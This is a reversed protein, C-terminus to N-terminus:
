REAYTAVKGGFISAMAKAAAAPDAAADPSGVLAPSTGASAIDGAGKLQVTGLVEGSVADVSIARDDTTLAVVSGGDPAAFLRRITGDVQGIAVAEPPVAGSGPKRYADLATTDVSSISGDRSGVLLQSGSEDFAIASAGDIPITAVLARTQLDFSRLEDGTVVDVRDGGRDGALSPDDTRPEILADVVPVGLDSTATVRDDGWAVLGGAMVYKALHPHTYEYIERYLGYRWDQLFETATRAHYVEDFHMQYPESLRFMRVGLTAAILVALIWLDLRDFRGPPEDHLARSRNARVPREALKARFCEIPGLEALSPPDSWTPVAVATAPLLATRPRGWGTPEGRDFAEDGTLDPAEVEDAWEAEWGADDAAASAVVDAALSRRARSRLQVFSWVAVAAATLAILSVGATSHIAGGIGLWDSIHPNDRYITTLVVYMNLFTTLSLLVYAIRWRISAAALIAGLGIFPFLYREHVRTPLIFFAIALITVGVLRAQPTPRRALATTVIRIPHDTRREWDILRSVIAAHNRSVSPAAHDSRVPWLARRITVVAVVPILIALQPKVLAAIVTFIASREPQDRWLARLGLLLFVVGFSDVQGWVVSDFWSVPNAVVLAAGVLAARRGAGIERAMSWVLWGLAVDALIPPIKILDGVGGVATFAQHVTGVLWLVYLYGPTYDHFFPRTYFGFLGNKALDGAWFQFSILDVRFGSGPNLLAIILRFVLGLALIAVIAGIGDRTGTTRTPADAGRSPGGSARGSTVPHNEGFSRQPPHCPLVPDTAARWGPGRGM